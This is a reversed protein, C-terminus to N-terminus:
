MEDLKDKEREIEGDKEMKGPMDIFKDELNCRQVSKMQETFCLSVSFVPSFFLLSCVLRGEGGEEFEATTQAAAM